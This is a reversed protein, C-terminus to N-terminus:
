TPRHAARLARAVAGVRGAPIGALNIRGSPLGYVAHESRLRLMAAPGLPLKLFMGRQEGLGAFGTLRALGDRLVGLRLRMSELEGRWCATLAPDTLIEAVIAAGHAPPQSYSARAINELLTAAHRRQAADDSLILACGTRESYLGWAKSASVAVVADPVARLLRRMGDLDEDLGDGLGFYAQDIFPVVGRRAMVSALEDWLAASMSLGTPNHCCGQILLVDGPRATRVAALMASGDPTVPHTVTRLGAAALIAPHNVYAPTGLHVTRDPGTAALLEALLRLAGTGAVTQVGETRAELAPDALLLAATSRTFRECGAPGVYAKSGSREALRLEATRVAQMVPSVGTDDRYVGVILDLRQPRVDRACDATLQWLPDASPPDLTLLM